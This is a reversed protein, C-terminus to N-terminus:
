RPTGTGGENAGFYGENRLRPTYHQSARMHIVAHDSLIERIVLAKDVGRARAIGELVFDVEAPIKTRADVLEGVFERM